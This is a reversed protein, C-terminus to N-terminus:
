KLVQFFSIYSEASKSSMFIMATLIYVGPGTPVNIFIGNFQGGAQSLPGIQLWNGTHPFTPSIVLNPGTFTATGVAQIASPPQNATTSEFNSEFLIVPTKIFVIRGRLTVHECKSTVLEFSFM